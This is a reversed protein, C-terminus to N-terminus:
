SCVCRGLPRVSVQYEEVALKLVGAPMAMAGSSTPTPRTPMLRGLRWGTGAGLTTPSAERVGTVHVPMGRAVLADHDERRNEEEDLVVLDPGLEVIADVDPDKTGGVTPLDPQECFRTCAIPEVGLARLSETASPVLSAVRM